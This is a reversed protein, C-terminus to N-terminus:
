AGEEIKKSTLLIFSEILNLFFGFAILFVGPILFTEMTITRITPFFMELSEKQFEIYEFVSVFLITMIFIAFMNVIINLVNLVKKKAFKSVVEFTIHKTKLTALAAGILAIYLVLMNMIQDAYPISENFLKRILIQMIGLGIMSTLFVVILSSELRLVIQKIFEIKKM